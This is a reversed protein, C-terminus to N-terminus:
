RPTAGLEALVEQVTDLPVPCGTVPRGLDELLVFRLSSGVRKKDLGMSEVIEEVGLGGIRTPLGWSQLLSEVRKVRTEHLLGLRASLRAAAALGVAVAEGHRYGRYGTVTELAHGVTHGLNLVARKGAEREDEMVVAAKILCSREVLEIMTSPERKWVLASREELFSFYNPDSVLAHKVVEALGARFEEDPLSQLTSVDAVVVVPQYFAGILNKGRPHNVAVKGGISADVQAVLSTPVQAFAVGRLYTAAVFGALDGAVGGGLALVLSHRDLDEAIARDYLHSTWELSKSEEGEPIEAVAPELGAKRLSGLIAEGYLRKLTPHTVVLVRSGPERGGLLTGAEGLIRDGVHILYGRKGLDVEVSRMPPRGALWDLIIGGVEEVGQGTTDVTLHACRYYRERAAHLDRIAQRSDEGALLPRGGGDGVRLYIEEPGADLRVLWGRAALRRVNVPNLVVGGGTAVVAPNLRSVCDIVEAELRRFEAEGGAAFISPIDKGALREVEEDTDIFPLGLRSALYRGVRSKGTGMFGILVVSRESVPLGM